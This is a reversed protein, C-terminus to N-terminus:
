AFVEFVKKLAAATYDIEEKTNYMGISIRATAPV